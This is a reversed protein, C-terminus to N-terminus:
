NHKKNRANLIIDYTKKIRYDNLNNFNNNSTKERAELFKQYVRYSQPLDFSGYHMQKVNFRKKVLLLVVILGIFFLIPEM